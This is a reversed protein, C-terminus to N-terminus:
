EEDDDTRPALGMAICTCSLALVLAWLGLRARLSSVLAANATGPLGLIQASAAENVGFIDVIGSVALFAVVAFLLSRVVHLPWSSAFRWALVWNVAFLVAVGGLWHRADSVSGGLDAPLSAALPGAIAVAACAALALAAVLALRAAIPM